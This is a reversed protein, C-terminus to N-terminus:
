KLKNQLHKFFAKKAPAHFEVYDDKTFVNSKDNNCYYCILVCNEPNYGLMHNIKEIEMYPGRIGEGRTKRGSVLKEAICKEILRIPTECYSCCGKQLTITKKWWESLEHSNKFGASHKDKKYVNKKVRLSERDLYESDINFELKKSEM